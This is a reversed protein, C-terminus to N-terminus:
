WLPHVWLAYSPYDGILEAPRVKWRKYSWIWAAPTEHIRRELARNMERTLRTVEEDRDATRDVEIEEFDLAYRMGNGIPRCVAFVLPAGRRVALLPLAASTLAPTDLFDVFVGGEKPRIAMDIVSCVIEGRRLAGICAPLAEDRYALRNGTRERRKRLHRDIRENRIPRAIFTARPFGLAGAALNFMEWSGFHATAIVAGKGAALQQEAWPIYRPDVDVYRRAKEPTLRASWLADLIAVAQLRLSKKLLRKHDDRDPYVRRLNELGVSRTRASLAYYLWGLRRGLFVMVPRPLWPVVFALARYFGYEVARRM